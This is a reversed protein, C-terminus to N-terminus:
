RVWGSFSKDSQTGKRPTAGGLAGQVARVLWSNESVGAGRAASDVAGRLGEPLRLTVRWTGGDDDGELPPVLPAQVYEPEATVSFESTRPMTMALFTCDFGCAVSQSRRGFM